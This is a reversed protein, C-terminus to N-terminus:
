MVAYTDFKFKRFTLNLRSEKITKDAILSHEYNDQCGKDMVLLSGSDLKMNLIHIKDKTRFGFDRVAGLSISAICEIDGKEENDSHYGINKKGNVYYNALCINFDYKLEKEIELKLEMLEPTFLLIRVGTGWIKPIQFDTLSSDVFVLTKRNLKYSDGGENTVRKVEEDDFIQTLDKFIKNAKEENVFSAYYKVDANELGLNM